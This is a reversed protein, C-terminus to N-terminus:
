YFQVVSKGDILVRLMFCCLRNERFLIICSQIHKKLFVFLCITDFGQQARRQKGPVLANIPRWKWPLGYCCWSRRDRTNLQVVSSGRTHQRAALRHEKRVSPVVLLTTAYLHLPLLVRHHFSACDAQIIVAWCRMSVRNVAIM